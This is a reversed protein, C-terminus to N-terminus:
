SISQTLRAPNINNVPCKCGPQLKIAPHASNNNSPIVGCVVSLTGAHPDQFIMESPLATEPTSFFTSCRMYTRWDIITLLSVYTGNWGTAVDSSSTHNWFHPISAMADDVYDSEGEGVVASISGPLRFTQISTHVISITSDVSVVSPITIHLAAIAGCLVVSSLVTPNVRQFSRLQRTFAM